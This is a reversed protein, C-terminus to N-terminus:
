TLLVIEFEHNIHYLLENFLMLIKFILVYIQIKEWVNWYDFKIDEIKGDDKIVM